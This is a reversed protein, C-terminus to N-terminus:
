RALGLGPAHIAAVQAFLARNAVVIPRWVVMWIALAFLPVYLARRGLRGLRAAGFALAASLGLTAWFTPVSFANYASASAYQGHATEIWGRTMGCTACPKGYAAKFACNLPLTLLGYSM